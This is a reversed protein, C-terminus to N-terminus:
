VHARGIERHVQLNYSARREARAAGRLMPAFVISLCVAVAAAAIAWFVWDAQM